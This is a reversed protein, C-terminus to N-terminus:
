GNRDARQEGAAAGGFPQQLRALQREVPVMDEAIRDIRAADRAAYAADLEQRLTHYLSHLEELSM